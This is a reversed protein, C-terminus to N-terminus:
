DYEGLGPKLHKLIGARKIATLEQRGRWFPQNWGTNHARLTVTNQSSKIEPSEKAITGLWMCLTANCLSYQVQHPATGNSEGEGAEFNGAHLQPNPKPIMHHSYLIHLCNPTLSQSWSVEPTLKKLQGLCIPSVRILFSHLPIFQMGLLPSESIKVLILLYYIKYLPYNKQQVQLIVCFGVDSDNADLVPHKWISNIKKKKEGMLM